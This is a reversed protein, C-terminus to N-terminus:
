IEVTLLTCINNADQEYVILSLKKGSMKASLLVSLYGKGSPSNIDFYVVNYKCPLTFTEATKFYGANGATVAINTVTKNDDVQTALAQTSLILFIVGYVINTKM